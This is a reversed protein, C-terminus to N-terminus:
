PSKAPAPKRKRSRMGHIPHNKGAARPPTKRMRLILLEDNAARLAMTIADAKEREHALAGLIAKADRRSFTELFGAARRIVREGVVQALPKPEVAVPPVYLMRKRAM